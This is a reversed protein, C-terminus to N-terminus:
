NVFGGSTLIQQELLVEGSVLYRVHLDFFSGSTDSYLAQDPYYNQGIGFTNFPEQLISSLPTLDFVLHGSNLKLPM